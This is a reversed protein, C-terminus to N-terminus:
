SVEISELGSISILRCWSGRCAPIGVDFYRVRGAGVVAGAEVFRQAAAAVMDEYEPDVPFIGFDPTFGIRWGKLPKDLAAAFDREGRDLSVPDFPDFLAMAQLVYASDKVTRSAARGM